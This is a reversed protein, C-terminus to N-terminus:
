RSTDIRTLRHARLWLDLYPALDHEAQAIAQIWGYAGAFALGEPNSNLAADWVAAFSGALVLQEDKPWTQWSSPCWSEYTLKGFVSASDVFDRQGSTQALLNSCVRSSISSTMGPTDGTGWTYVADMAYDRLDKRNLKNLPTQGPQPMDCCPCPVLDSRLEYRQFDRYLGEIGARLRPTELVGEHYLSAGGTSM